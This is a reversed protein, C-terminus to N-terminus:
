QPNASKSVQWGLREIKLGLLGVSAHEIEQLEINRNPDKELDQARLFIAGETDHILRELQTPDTELCCAKYLEKWSPM